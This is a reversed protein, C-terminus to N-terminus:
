GWKRSPSHEPNYEQIIQPYFDKFRQVIAILKEDNFLSQLEESDFNTEENFVEGADNIANFLKVAIDRSLFSTYENHIYNLVELKFSRRNAVLDFSLQDCSDVRLSKYHHM